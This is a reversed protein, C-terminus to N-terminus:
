LGFEEKLFYGVPKNLAKAIAVLDGITFDEPSKLKKDLASKMLGKRGMRDSLDQITFGRMIREAQIKAAVSIGHKQFAAIKTVKPM